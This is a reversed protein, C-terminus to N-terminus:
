IPPEPLKAWHTVGSTKCGCCQSYTWELDNLNEPLEDANYYGVFFEPNTNILVDQLKEPLREKVSIWDTM